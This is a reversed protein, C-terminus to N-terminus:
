SGRKIGCIGRKFTHNSGNRTVWEEAAEQSVFYSVHERGPYCKFGDVYKRTQIHARNECFWAVWQKGGKTDIELQSFAELVRNVGRRVTELRILEADEYREEKVALDLLRQLMAEDPVMELLQRKFENNVEM